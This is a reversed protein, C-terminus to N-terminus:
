GNDETKGHTFNFIREGKTYVPIKFMDVLPLDVYIYTVVSYNYYKYGNDNKADNTTDNEIYYVCYFHSTPNSEMPELSGRSPCTYNVDTSYGISDLNTKIEAKSLSNFGEYKEISSLIMTNVKYAKYYNLTAALIAFVILIFIIIINYTFYEGISERM